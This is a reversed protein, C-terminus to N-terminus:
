SKRKDSTLALTNNETDRFFAMWLEYTGMDAVKHPEGEFHVDRASLAAHMTHIDAVQYYIISAPHDHEGEEAKALMIRVGGLEFFSMGSVELWLKLGLVDRYFATARAVDKVPVAIQAIREIAAAQQTENM